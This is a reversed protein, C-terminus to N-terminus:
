KMAEKHAEVAAAAAKAWTDAPPLSGKPVTAWVAAEAKRSAEAAEKHKAYRDMM